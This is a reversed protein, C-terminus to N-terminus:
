FFSRLFEYVERLLFSLLGVLIMLLYYVYHDFGIIRSEVLLKRDDSNPEGFYYRINAGVRHFTSEMDVNFEEASDPLEKIRDVKRKKFDKGDDTFVGEELPLMEILDFKNLTWANGEFRTVVIKFDIKGGNEYPLTLIYPLGNESLWAPINIKIRKNLPVTKYHTGHWSGSYFKAMPIKGFFLRVRLITSVPFRGLYRGKEKNINTIHTM